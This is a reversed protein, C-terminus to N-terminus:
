LGCSFNVESEQLFKGVSVTYEGDNSGNRGFETLSFKSRIFGVAGGGGWLGKWEIFDFLLNGFLSSKSEYCSPQFMKKSGWKRLNELLM